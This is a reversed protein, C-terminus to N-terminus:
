PLHRVKFPIDGRRSCHEVGRGMEIRYFYEYILLTILQINNVLMFFWFPFIFFIYTHKLIVAFIISSAKKIKSKVLIISFYGEM